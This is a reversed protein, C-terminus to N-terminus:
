LSLRNLPLETSACVNQITATVHGHHAIHTWQGSTCLVRHKSECTSWDQLCRQSNYHSVNMYSLVVFSTASFSTATKTYNPEDYLSRTHHPFNQGVRGVKKQNCRPVLTCPPVTRSRLSCGDSRERTCVKRQTSSETCTVSFM